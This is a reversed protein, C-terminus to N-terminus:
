STAGPTYREVGLAHALAQLLVLGDDFTLGVVGPFAPVDVFALYQEPNPEDKPVVYLSLSDGAADRIVLDGAATRQATM